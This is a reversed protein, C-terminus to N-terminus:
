QGFMRKIKSFYLKSKLLYHLLCPKRHWCDLCIILLNEKCSRWFTDSFIVSIRIKHLRFVHPKKDLIWLLWHKLTHRILYNILEPAWICLIRDLLSCDIPVKIIYFKLHLAFSENALSLLLIAYIFECVLSSSHKKSFLSSTTSSKQSYMHSTFKTEKLAFPLKLTESM